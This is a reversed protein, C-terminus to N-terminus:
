EEEEEEIEKEVKERLEKTLENDQDDEDILADRQDLYENIFEHQKEWAMKVVDKYTIGDENDITTEYVLWKFGFYKNGIWIKYKKKTAEIEAFCGAYLKIKDYTVQKM